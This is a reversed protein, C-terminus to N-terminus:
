CVRKVRAGRVSSVHEDSRVWKGKSSQVSKLMLAGAPVVPPGGGTSQEVYE